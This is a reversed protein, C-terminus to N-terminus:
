PQDTAGIPQNTLRRLAINAIALTMTVTGPPVIHVQSLLQGGEVVGGLVNVWITRSKWWAKTM